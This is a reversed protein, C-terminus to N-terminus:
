KLNNVEQSYHWFLGTFEDDVDKSAQLVIYEDFAEEILLQLGDVSINQVITGELLIINAIIDKIILKTNGHNLLITAELGISLDEMVICSTTRLDEIGGLTEVIYLDEIGGLTEVIYLDEIGGLTEVIYLNDVLPVATNETNETSVTNVINGIEL